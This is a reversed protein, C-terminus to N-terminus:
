FLSSRKGSYLKKPGTLFPRAQRYRVKGEREIALSLQRWQPEMTKILPSVTVEKNTCRKEKNLLRNRHFNYWKIEKFPFLDANFSVEFHETIEIGNTRLTKYNSTFHLLWHPEGCKYAGAISYTLSEASM